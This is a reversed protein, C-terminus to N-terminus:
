IRIEMELIFHYYRYDDNSLLIKEFSYGDDCSYYICDADDNVNNVNGNNIRIEM